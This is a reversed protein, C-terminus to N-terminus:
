HRRHSAAPPPHRSIGSAVDDDYIGVDVSRPSVNRLVTVAELVAPEAVVTETWDMATPDADAALVDAIGPM